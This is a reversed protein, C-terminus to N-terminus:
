FFYTLGLGVRNERFSMDEKLLDTLGLDAEISLTFDKMPIGIGIKWACDFRRQVNWLGIIDDVEEKIEKDKIVVEGGLAYRLQPGTFVDIAFKDSFDITYGFVLPLQFGLKYLKPDKFFNVADVGIVLDYKYQSYFFSLGPEFYFNKGLCINSVGGIAFGVGPKYMRVSHNEGHWKGPLEADISAKLGWLVRNNDAALVNLNFCSLIIGIFLIKLKRNM